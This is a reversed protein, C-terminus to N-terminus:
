ARGPLCFRWGRGLCGTWTTTFGGAHPYTAGLEAFCLGGVLSLVGGLLWLGLVQPVSTLHAAVWVPTEFIGVGVVIGVILAIGDWTTLQPRLELRVPSDPVTM